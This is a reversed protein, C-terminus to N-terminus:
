RGTQRFAPLLDHGQRRHPTPVPPLSHAAEIRISAAARRDLVTSNQVRDLLFVLDDLDFPVDLCAAAGSAWALRVTDRDAFGLLAVVPGLRARERVAARWGCDLVPVDCVTLGPESGPEDPASRSAVQFGASRLSEALVDRLERDTSIVEVRAAAPAIRRLAAEGGHRLRDIHRPLTELATAEPILLDVTRGARELEAYRVYPGYCLVLPFPELRWRELQQVDGPALRSRHVVVVAPPDAPAFPREPIPGACHVARIESTPASSSVIESVWPDDLDGLFWIRGSAADM